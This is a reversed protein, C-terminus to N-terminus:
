KIRVVNTIFNLAKIVQVKSLYKINPVTNFFNFSYSSNIQKCIKSRYRKMGRALEIFYDDSRESDIFFDPDGRQFCKGANAGSGRIRLDCTKRNEIINKDLLKFFPNCSVVQRKKEVRPYDKRQFYIFACNVTVYKEKKTKRRKSCSECNCEEEEEEEENEDNKDLFECNNLKKSYIVHFEPPVYRKLFSDKIFSIPLLFAINNSIEAAKQIFKAATKGNVGFPVNSIVLTKEPNLRNPPKADLFDAEITSNTKQQKSMYIEYVLIKPHNVVDKVAKVFSGTEGCCCDIITDFERLDVKTNLFTVLRKALDPPTYFKEFKTSQKRGIITSSRRKEKPM